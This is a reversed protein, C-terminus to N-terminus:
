SSNSFTKGNSNCPMIPYPTTAWFIANEGITREEFDASYQM